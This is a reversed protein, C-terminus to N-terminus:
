SRVFTWRTQSFGEGKGFAFGRAPAVEFVVAHGEEGDKSLHASEHVFMDGVVAYRWDAGYKEVWLDALRRLREADTVRVADGEIVVDVGAFTNVGTTLTCHPNQAINRTKQEDPGTHFYASDDLWVSILPTVHPRGDPRVTSLWYVEAGAFAKQAEAWETPKAGDSSYRADLETVPETLGM